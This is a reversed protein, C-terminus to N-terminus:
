QTPSRAAVRIRVEYPETEARSLREGHLSNIGVIDFRIEDYHAGILKLREEVKSLFALGVTGEPINANHASTHSVLEISMVAFCILLIFLM